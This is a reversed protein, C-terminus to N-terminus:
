RKDRETNDLMQSGDWLRYIACALLPIVIVIQVGAAVAATIVMDGAKIHLTIDYLFSSEVADFISDLIVPLLRGSSARSGETSTRIRALSWRYFQSPWM